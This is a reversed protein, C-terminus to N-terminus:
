LRVGIGLSWRSGSERYNRPWLHLQDVDVEPWLYPLGRFEGAREGTIRGTVSLVRGARFNESEAYGPLLLIFRGHDAQDLLPRQRYDLPFSLIEIESHHAFNNVELIMGGWVVDHELWRQPSESVLYPPPAVEPPLQTFVPTTSCGALLLGAAILLASVGGMKRRMNM